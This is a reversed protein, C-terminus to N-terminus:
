QSRRESLCEHSEGYRELIFTPLSEFSDDVRLIQEVTKKSRVLPVIRQETLDIPITVGYEIPNLHRGKNRRPSCYNFLGLGCIFGLKKVSDFQQRLATLPFDV